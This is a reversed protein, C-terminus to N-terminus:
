QTLTSIYKNNIYYEIEYLSSSQQVEQQENNSVIGLTGHINDLYENAIDFEDDNMIDDYWEHVLGLHIDDQATKKPQKRDLLPFSINKSVGPVTDDRIIFTRDEEDEEVNDKTTTNTVRYARGVACVDVEVSSFGRYGVSNMVFSEEYIECLIVYPLLGDDDLISLGVVSEYSTLAEDIIDIYKGQKFQLKTSQGPLIIQAPKFPLLLLPLTTTSNNNASTSQHTSSNSSSFKARWENIGYIRSRSLPFHIIKTSIHSTYFANAISNTGVFLIWVLLMM